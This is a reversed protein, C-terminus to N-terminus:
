ELTAPLNGPNGRQRALPISAHKSTALRESASRRLPSATAAHVRHTDAYSLFRDENHEGGTGNGNGVVIGAAPPSWDLPGVGDIQMEGSGGFADALSDSFDTSLNLTDPSLDMGGLEMDFSAMMDMEDSTFNPLDFNPLRGGANGGPIDTGGGLGAGSGEMSWCRPSSIGHLSKFKELLHAEDAATHEVGLIERAKARLEDDSPVVGVALSEKVHANLGRELDRSCFVSAIPGFRTQASLGQVFRQATRPAIKYTKNQMTVDVEKDFHISADPRPAVYPPSYGTGGSGEAWPIGIEKTSPLGPGADNPLLGVDRKFRVLWEANDAATQNWPDDDDYIVWRAQNQIEADTPIRPGAPNRPSLSSSVFRTLERVLRGYCNADNLFYRLPAVPNTNTSPQNQPITHLLASPPTIAGTGPRGRKPPATKLGRHLDSPSVPSPHGIGTHELDWHLSQPSPASFKPPSGTSSLLSLALVGLDTPTPLEAVEEEITELGNQRKFVRLYAPDDAATQNWADDSEFIIMRAKAQLDADSPILGLSRQENVFEILERELRHYNHISYDITTNDTSRVLEDVMESSRPLVARCRFDSLWASSSTILYKFWQVAGKCKYSSSLEIDDLIKCAQVQLESDTPTLGIAQRSRVYTKLAREKTCTIRSLDNMETQNQAQAVELRQAWSLHHTPKAETRLDVQDNQPAQGSLM